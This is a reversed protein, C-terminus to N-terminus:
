IRQLVDVVAEEMVDMPAKEGTWLEFQFAGQHVFMALGNIVTCGIREAERLLCTKLPNYIIDMVILDDTLMEKELPMQDVHPAMGVPTTNILIDGDIKKFDSLPQFEANLTNSLKEGKGRSRNVITLKGGEQVIGYGIAHAAGGAGLIVVKKNRVTTKAGLALIAGPCDSNYGFLRGEKNLITNVAGIQAATKDTEDLCDMVAVKHPITISAGQINMARLGTIAASIDDVKFPVYVANFGIHNFARNHMVPSLSHSVPNGIVAFVATSGPDQCRTILPQQIERSVVIIERFIHNLNYNNLPGKNLSILREILTGERQSDVIRNGGKNKIAGIDKAILLRRNILDLIQAVIGDISKRLDKIKKDAM